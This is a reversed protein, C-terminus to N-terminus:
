FEGEWATAAVIQATKEEVTELTADVSEAEQAIRDSIAGDMAEQAEEPSPAVDLAAAAVPLAEVPAADEVDLFSASATKIADIQIERLVTEALEGGKIVRRTIERAADRAEQIASQVRTATEETLMAGLSRAKNAAERIAAPDCARIGADLSALLGRVEGAVARAAEADDGAIKGRLIAFGIRTTQATANHAAVVAQAADIANALAEGKDSPCLLGFESAACVGTILARSKARAKVAREHEAPDVTVRVTEWKAVAASDPASVEGANVSLDRRTYAVGGDITTRLSVLWGPRLIAIPAPM